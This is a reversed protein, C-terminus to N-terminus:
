SYGHQQYEPTSHVIAFGPASNMVSGFGLVALGAAVNAVGVAINNFNSLAIRANSLNLAAPLQLVRSLMRQEPVSLFRSSFDHTRGGFRSAECCGSGEFERMPDGEGLRRHGHLIRKVGLVSRIIFQRSHDIPGHLSTTRTM